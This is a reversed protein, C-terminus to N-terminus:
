ENAWRIEKSLRYMYSKSQIQICLDNFNYIINLKNFVLINNVTSNGKQLCFENQSLIVIMFTHNISLFQNNAFNEEM